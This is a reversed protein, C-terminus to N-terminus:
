SNQVSHVALYKFLGTEELARINEDPLRRRREAETANKLPISRLGRAREILDPDQLARDLEFRGAMMQPFAARGALARHELAAASAEEAARQM